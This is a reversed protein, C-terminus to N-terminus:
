NLMVKEAPLPRPVIIWDTQGSNGVKHSYHIFAGTYFFATWDPQGFADPKGKCSNCIRYWSSYPNGSMAYMGIVEKGCRPCIREPNGKDAGFIKRLEAQMEALTKHPRKPKM